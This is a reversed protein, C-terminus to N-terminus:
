SVEVTITTGVASTNLVANNVGSESMGFVKVRFQCSSATSTAHPSGGKAGPSYVGGDGAQIVVSEGMQNAAVGVGSTGSMSWGSVGWVGSILVEAICFLESAPFPTPVIVRNGANITAPSAESGGPYIITFPTYTGLPLFRLSDPTVIANVGVSTNAVEESTALRAIGAQNTTALRVKDEFSAKLQSAQVAKYVTGDVIDQESAWEVLGLSTETAPLAVYSEARDASNKAAQASAAASAASQAAEAAATIAQEVKEMQGPLINDVWNLIAKLLDTFYEYGTILKM